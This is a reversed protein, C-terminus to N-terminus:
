GAGSGMNECLRIRWDCSIRLSSNKYWGQSYASPSVGFVQANMWLNCAKPFINFSKERLPQNCKNTTRFLPSFAVIFAPLVPPDLHVFVVSASQPSTLLTGGPSPPSAPLLPFFPTSFTTASFYKLFSFVFGNSSPNTHSDNWEEAKKGCMEGSHRESPIKNNVTPNLSPRFKGDTNSNHLVYFRSCLILLFLDHSQLISGGASWGQFEVSIM